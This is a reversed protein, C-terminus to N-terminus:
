HEVHFMAPGANLCDLSGARRPPLPSCFQEKKERRHQHLIRRDRRRFRGVGALFMSTELGERFLVSDEGIVIRM